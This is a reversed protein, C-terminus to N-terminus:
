PVSLKLTKGLHLLFHWSSAPSADLIHLFTVRAYSVKCTMKIGRHSKPDEGAESRKAGQGPRVSQGDLIFAPRGRRQLPCAKASFLM